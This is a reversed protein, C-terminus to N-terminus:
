IIEDPNIVLQTGTREDRILSDGFDKNKGNVTSSSDLDDKSLNEDEEDIDFSDDMAMKKKKEEIFKFEELQQDLMTPARVRSSYTPKEIYEYTKDKQFFGVFIFTSLTFCALLCLILVVVAFIFTTLLFTLLGTEVDYYNIFTSLKKSDMEGNLGTIELKITNFDISDQVTNDSKDNIIKFTLNRLESNSLISGTGKENISTYFIQNEDEDMAIDPIEQGPIRDKATVTLIRGLNINKTNNDKVKLPITKFRNCNIVIYPNPDTIQYVVSVYECKEIEEGIKSDTSDNKDIKSITNDITVNRLRLVVYEKNILIRETKFGEPLEFSAKTALSQIIKSNTKTFDAKFRILHARVNNTSVICDVSNEKKDRLRCEINQVFTLWIGKQKDVVPHFLFSYSKGSGVESEISTNGGENLTTINSPQKSISFIVSVGIQNFQSNSYIFMFNGGKLIVVSYDEVKFKLPVYFDIIPPKPKEDKKTKELQEAQCIIHLKDKNGTVELVCILENNMKSIWHIGPETVYFSTYSFTGNKLDIPIKIINLISSTDNIRNKYQLLTDSMMEIELDSQQENNEIYDNGNAEKLSAPSRLRGLAEHIWSDDVNEHIMWESNTQNRKPELDKVILKKSQKSFIMLYKNAVEIKSIVFDEPIKLDVQPLISERNSTKFKNQSYSHQIVVKQAGGNMSIFENLNIEKNESIFPIKDDKLRPSVNQYKPTLDIRISNYNKTYNGPIISPKVMPPRFDTGIKIKVHQSKSQDEKSYPETLIKLLPGEVQTSYIISQKLTSSQGFQFITFLSRNDRSLKSKFGQPSSSTQQYRDNIQFISLIRKFPSSVFQVSYTVLLLSSKGRKDFALIQVISKQPICTMQLIFTLEIEELPLVKQGSDQSNIFVLENELTNAFVTHNGIKCYRQVPNHIVEKSINERPDIKAGLSFPGIEYAYQRNLAINNARLSLYINKLKLYFKPDSFFTQRKEENPIEININMNTLEISSPIGNGPPKNEKVQYFILESKMQGILDGPKEKRIQVTALITEGISINVDMSSLSGNILLTSKVKSLTSITHLETKGNKDVTSFIIARPTGFATKDQFDACYNIGENWYTKLPYYDEYLVCQISNFASESEEKQKDEKSWIEVEFDCYFLKATKVGEPCSKDLIGSKKKTVLLFYSSGLSIWNEIQYQNSDCGSTRCSAKKLNEFNIKSTDQYRTIFNPQVNVPNESVESAKIKKFEDESLSEVTFKPNNGHYLKSNINLISSSNSYGNINQFDLNLYPQDFVDTIIEINKKKITAGVIWRLEVKKKNTQLELASSDKVQIQIYSNKSPQYARLYIINNTPTKLFNSIVILWSEKRFRFSPQFLVAEKQQSGDQFKVGSIYNKCELQYQNKISLEYNFYCLNHIGENYKLIGSEVNVSKVSEFSKVVTFSFANTFSIFNTDKFEETRKISEIFCTETQCTSQDNLMKLEPKQNEPIDILKWGPDESKLNVLKDIVIRELSIFALYGSQIFLSGTAGEIDRKNASPFQYQRHAMRKLTFQSSSANTIKFAVVEFKLNDKKDSVESVYGFLFLTDKVIEINRLVFNDKLDGSLDNPCYFGDIKSYGKFVNNEINIFLVQFCNQKKFEVTDITNDSSMRKPFLIIFQLGNKQYFTIETGLSCFLRQNGLTTVKDKIGINTDKYSTMFMKDEFRHIYLDCDVHSVLTSNKSDPNPLKMTKTTFCPTYILQQLNNSNVKPDKFSNKFMEQCFFSESIKDDNPKKLTVLTSNFTRLIDSEIEGELLKNAGCLMYFSCRNPRQFIIYIWNKNGKESADQSIKPTYCSHVMQRCRDLPDLSQGDTKDVTIFSNIDKENKQIPNLYTNKTMIIGKDHSKVFKEQSEMKTLAINIKDRVLISSDPYIYAQTDACSVGLILLLQMSLIGFPMLIPHGTFLEKM